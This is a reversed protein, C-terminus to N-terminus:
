FKFLTRRKNSASFSFDESHQYSPDGELFITPLMFIKNSARSISRHKAKFPALEKTFRRIQLFSPALRKATVKSLKQSGKSIAQSKFRAFTKIKLYAAGKNKTVLKKIFYSLLLAKQIRSKLTALKQISNFAKRKQILAFRSEFIKVNFLSIKKKLVKLSKFSTILCFEQNREFVKKLIKMGTLSEKRVLYSFFGSFSSRTKKVAEFAHKKVKLLIKELTKVGKLDIKKKVLRVPRVKKVRQCLYIEWFSKLVKMQTLKSLVFFLRSLSKVKNDPLRFVKFDQDFSVCRARPSSIHSFLTSFGSYSDKFNKLKYFVWLKKPFIRKQLWQILQNVTKRDFTKRRKQSLSKLKIFVTSKQKQFLWHLDKVFKSLQFSFTLRPNKFPSPLESNVKRYKQFYTVRSTFVTSM